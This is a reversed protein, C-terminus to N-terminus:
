RRRRDADHRGAAKRSAEREGAAERRRYRAPEGPDFNVEGLVVPAGAGVDQRRNGADAIDVGVRFLVVRRGRRSLRSAREGHIFAKVVKAFPRERQARIGVVEIRAPHVVLREAVQAVADLSVGAEDDDGAFDAGALRRQQLGHQAPRSRCVETARSTFM